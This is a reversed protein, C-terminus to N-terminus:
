NINMFHSHCRCLLIASGPHRSNFAKTAHFDIRIHINGYIALDNGSTKQPSVDCACVYLSFNVFVCIIPHPFLPPSAHGHRMTTESVDEFNLRFSKWYTM